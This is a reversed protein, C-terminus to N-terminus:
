SNYSPTYSWVFWYTRGKPHRNLLHSSMHSTHYFESEYRNRAKEDNFLAFDSAHPYTQDFSRGTEKYSKANITDYIMTSLYEKDFWSVRNWDFGKVIKEVDQKTKKTHKTVKYNMNLKKINKVNKRFKTYM